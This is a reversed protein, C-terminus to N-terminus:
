GSKRTNEPHIRDGGGARSNEFAHELVGVVVEVVDKVDGLYARCPYRARLFSGGGELVVM